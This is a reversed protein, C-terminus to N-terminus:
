QLRTVRHACAATHNVLAGLVIRVYLARGDEDPTLGVIASRRAGAWPRAGMAPRLRLTCLISQQRCSALLRAGAPQLMAVLQRPAHRLVLTGSTMWLLASLVEVFHPDKAPRSMTVVHRLCVGFNFASSPAKAPSRELNIRTCPRQHRERQLFLRPPVEERNNVNSARTSDAAANDLSVM